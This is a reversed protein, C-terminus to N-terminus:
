LRQTRAARINVWLGVLLGVTAVILGVAFVRIDFLLVPVRIYGNSLPVVTPFGRRIIGNILSLVAGTLPCRLAGLMQHLGGYMLVAAVVALGQGKVKIWGARFPPSLTMATRLARNLIRKRCYRGSSISAPVAM